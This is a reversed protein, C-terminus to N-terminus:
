YYFRIFLLIQIHNNVTPIFYSQLNLVIRLILQSKNQLIINFEINVTEQHFTLPANQQCFSMPRNSIPILFARHTASSRHLTPAGSARPNHTTKGHPAMPRSAAIHPFGRM